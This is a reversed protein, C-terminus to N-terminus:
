DGDHAYVMTPIRRLNLHENQNEAIMQLRPGDGPRKLVLQTATGGDLMVADGIEFNQMPKLGDSTTLGRVYTTFAGLLFEVTEQWSVGRDDKKYGIVVMFLHKRDKSWALMSRARTTVLGSTFPWTTDVPQVMGDKILLGVNNLGYPLQRIAPGPHFGNNQDVDREILHARETADIGFGWRQGSNGFNKGPNGCNWGGQGKGVFGVIQSCNLRDGHHFNGNIAGYYRSKNALPGATVFDLVSSRDQVYVTRSKGGCKYKVWIAAWHNDRNAVRWNGEHWELPACEENHFGTFSLWSEEIMTGDPWNTTYAFASVNFSGNSITYEKGGDVTILYSV